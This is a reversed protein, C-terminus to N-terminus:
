GDGILQEETEAIPSAVQPAEQPAGELQAEWLPEKDGLGAPSDQGCVVCSNSRKAKLPTMTAELADYLVYTHCPGLGTVLKLFEGVAHAAVAMNLFMVQPAPEQPGLGYGHARRQAKEGETMLEDRAQERDIGGVCELCYGDPLVVRIQGGAELISGEKAQRVLGSGCDIYPIYYQTALRNLVLRSGQSDTCGFIVDMEKLLSVAEATCVSSRLPTVRVLPNIWQAQRKLVSVKPRHLMADWRYAGQLRNLNSAEVRDPDVLTLHRVGSRVLLECVVSGIGGCGVVGVHLEQIIRQGEQGLARVQRDLWYGHGRHTLRSGIVRRIALRWSEGHASTPVLFRFQSGIVKVQDIPVIAEKGRDWMHADVSERGVVMTGHHIGPMKRAVYPFKERDNSLDIASFRVAKRCSPHSHVEILSLGEERCRYLLSRSFDDIVALSACSQVSLNEGKVPIIERALLALRRRTENHGCLVFALQELHGKELLHERLVEFTQELFVMERKMEDGM